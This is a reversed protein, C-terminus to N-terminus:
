TIWGIVVWMWYCMRLLDELTKITRESQGGTQPHYSTSLHVNQGDGGPFDEQVCFHVRIGTQCLVPPFGM